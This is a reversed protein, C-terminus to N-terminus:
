GPARPLSKITIELRLFGGGSNSQIRVYVKSTGDGAIQYTLESKGSLSRCTATNLVKLSNDMPDAKKMRVNM